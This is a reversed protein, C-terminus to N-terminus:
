STAVWRSDRARGGGRTAPPDPIEVCLSDETAPFADRLVSSPAPVLLRRRERKM